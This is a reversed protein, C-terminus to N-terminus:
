CIQQGEFHGKQFHSKKKNGSIQLLGNKSWKTKKSESIMGFILKAEVSVSNKNVVSFTITNNKGDRGGM